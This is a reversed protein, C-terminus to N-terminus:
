DGGKRLSGDPNLACEATTVEVGTMVRICRVLDAVSVKNREDQDQDLVLTFHARGDRVLDVDRSTDAATAPTHSALCGVITLLLLLHSVSMRSVM